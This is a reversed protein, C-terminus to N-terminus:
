PLNIRIDILEILNVILIVLGEYDKDMRANLEIVESENIKETFKGELNSRASQLQNQLEMLKTILKEENPIKWIPRNQYSKILLHLEKVPITYDDSKNRLM